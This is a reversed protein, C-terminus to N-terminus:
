LVGQAYHVGDTIAGGINGLLNMRASRVNASAKAASAMTSQDPLNIVINAPPQSAAAVASNAQGQEYIAALTQNGQVETTRAQIRALDETGAVDLLETGIQTMAALQTQQLQDSATSNDTASAPTQTVTSATSASHSLMAILVVGGVLAWVWVPVSKAKETIDAMINM